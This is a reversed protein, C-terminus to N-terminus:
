GKAQGLMGEVLQANLPAIDVDYLAVGERRGAIARTITAYAHLHFFYTALEKSMEFSPTIPALKLMERLQNPIKGKRIYGWLSKAREGKLLLAKYLEKAGMDRWPLSQSEALHILRLLAFPSYRYPSYLLALDLYPSTHAPRIPWPLLANKFAKKRLRREIERIGKRIEPLAKELKGEAKWILTPSYGALLTPAYLIPRGGVLFTPM